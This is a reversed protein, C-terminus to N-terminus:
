ICLVFGILFFFCFSFSIGFWLKITLITLFFSNHSLSINFSVYKPILQSLFLPLITYESHNSLSDFPQCVTLHKESSPISIKCHWCSYCPSTIKHYKNQFYCQFKKSMIAWKQPCDLNVFIFAVAHCNHLCGLAPPLFSGAWTLPNLPLFVYSPTVPVTRCDSFLQAKSSLSCSLTNPM